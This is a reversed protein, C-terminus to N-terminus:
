KGFRLEEGKRNGIYKVLDPHLVTTETISNYLYSMFLKCPIYGNSDMIFLPKTAPGLPYQITITKGDEEPSNIYYTLLGDNLSLIMNCRYSYEVGKYIEEMENEINNINFNLKECILFSVWRDYPNEAPNYNPEKSYHRRIYGSNIDMDRLKSVEALKKLAEIFESKSLISKVEGIGVCTEATYFKKNFGDRLLPTYENDYIVLDCQTSVEGRSNIIFGSGINYIAPLFEKIFSECVRERAVGYEGPHILKGDKFFLEKSSEIFNTKFTNIRQEMLMNFINEM